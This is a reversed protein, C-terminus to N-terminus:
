FESFVKIDLSNIESLAKKFKDTLYSEIPMTDAIKSMVAQEGEQGYKKIIPMAWHFDECDLLVMCACARQFFDNANLAIGFSGELTKIIETSYQEM